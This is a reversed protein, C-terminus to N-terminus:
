CSLPSASDRSTQTSAGLGGGCLACGHALDCSLASKRPSIGDSRLRVRGRFTAEAQSHFGAAVAGATDGADPDEDSDGHRLVDGAVRREHEFGLYQRQSRRGARLAASSERGAWVRHEPLDRKGPQELEVGGAGLIGGNSRQCEYPSQLDVCEARRRDFHALSDHNWRRLSTTRSRAMARSSRDRCRVTGGASSSNQTDALWVMGASDVAVGDTQGCCDSSFAVNGGADVHVVSMTGSGGTIWVGHATDPALAVPFGLGSGTSIATFTNTGPHFAVLNTISGTVAYNAIFMTGNRTRRSRMPIASVTIRSSRRRASHGGQRSARWSKLRDRPEMTRRMSALLSGCM